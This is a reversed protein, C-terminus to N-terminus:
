SSKACHLDLRKKPLQRNRLLQSYPVDVLAWLFSEALLCNLLLAAKHSFDYRPGDRQQM